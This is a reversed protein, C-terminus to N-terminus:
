LSTLCDDSMLGLGCHLVKALLHFEDGTHNFSHRAGGVFFAFLGSVSLILKFSVSSWVDM